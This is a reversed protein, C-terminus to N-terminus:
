FKVYSARKSGDPRAVMKRVRQEGTKSNRYVTKLAAPKGRGAKISVKRGTSVWKSVPRKSTHKGGGAFTTASTTTHEDDDVSSRSSLPRIFTMENQFRFPASMYADYQAADLIKGSYEWNMSTFANVYCKYAGYGGTEDVHCTDVSRNGWLFSAVGQVLKNCVGQDRFMKGVYVLSLYAVKGIVAGYAYGIIVGSQANRICFLFSDSNLFGLDDRLDFMSNRTLAGMSVESALFARMDDFDTLSKM